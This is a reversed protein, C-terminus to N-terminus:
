AVQRGMLYGSRASIPWIATARRCTLGGDNPEECLHRSISCFDPHRSVVVESVTSGVMPEGIAVPPAYSPADNMRWRMYPDLSLLKTKLLLSGEPAHPIDGTELRFDTVQPEGIPRCALLIRKNV